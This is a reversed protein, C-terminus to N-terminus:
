TGIGRHSRDRHSTVIIYGRSHYCGVSTEREVFFQLQLKGCIFDRVEVITPCVIVQQKSLQDIKYTDSFLSCVFFRDVTELVSEQADQFRRTKL